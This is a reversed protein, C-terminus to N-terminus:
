PTVRVIASGLGGYTHFTCNPLLAGVIGTGACVEFQTGAPVADGPITFLASPSPGNPISQYDHYGYPGKISIGITPEGFNM